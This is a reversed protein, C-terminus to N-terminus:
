FPIEDDTTTGLSPAPSPARTLERDTPEGDRGEDCVARYACNGCNWASPQAAFRRSRVAALIEDCTRGAAYLANEFQKETLPVTVTSGDSLFHLELDFEQVGTERTAAQRYLALQLRDEFRLEDLLKPRGTKYDILKPRSGPYAASPADIRDIKGDFSHGGIPLEKFPHEVLEIRADRWPPSDGYRTVMDRGVESLGGFRGKDFRTDTWVAEYIRGLEDGTVSVGRRRTQGGQYLTEHVLRGLIASAAPRPPAGWYYRFAFQRPCRRFTEVMTYNFTGIRFDFPPAELPAPAALRAAPASSSAVDAHAKLPTIFPSDDYRRWEFREAHTVTLSDMARTMAVYFLRREEEEHPDDPLAEDRYVLDQPLELSEARDRLPLEGEVLQVVFVHPYELGKAGHITSLRVANRDVAPEPVEDEEETREILSLYALCGDLTPEPQNGAYRWVLETLKRLSAYGDLQRLQDPDDVLGAYRSRDFASMLVELPGESDKRLGLEEVDNVLRTFRAIEDGTLGFESERGILKRIRIDTERAERLLAFRAPGVRYCPLQMLRPYLQDDDPDQAARLLALAAKIVPQKFFDRRGPYHFPVGRQRLANAIRELHTRKRGLVAISKLEAGDRALAQTRDAITLAEADVEGAKVLSVPAGGPRVPDLEKGERNPRGEMVALSARVIQPTSRRNERIPYYACGPYRARFKIVNHRSAGRFKYIAQDDDAVVLLNAGAGAVRAALEAQSDSTDQYEDVMTHDYRSAVAERVADIELLELGLLIQDDLDFRGSTRGRRVYVDYIEAIEGLKERKLQELTTEGSRPRRAWEIFAAPQVRESKADSIIKAITRLEYYPDTPSFFHSPRIESVIERLLEWQEATGMTRLRTPLGIFGGFERVLGLSFAHFTFAEYSPDFDDAAGLPTAAHVARMRARLQAAANRGFTLLLFREPHVGERVLRAYRHILVFTKGSGPGALVLAPGRGHDIAARQSVTPTDNM